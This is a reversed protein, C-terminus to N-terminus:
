LKSIPYVAVDVKNSKAYDELSKDAWHERIMDLAEEADFRRIHTTRVLIREEELMSTIANIRANQIIPNDEKPLKLEKEYEELLWTYSHQAEKTQDQIATEDNPYEKLIEFEFKPDSYERGGFISERPQPPTFKILFYNDVTDVFYYYYASGGAILLLSVFAIILFLVNKKM